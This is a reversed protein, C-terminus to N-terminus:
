NTAAAQAAIAQVGTMVTKGDSVLSLAWGKHIFALWQEYTTGEDNSRWSYDPSEVLWRALLEPTVFVPSIPSGESVTEWLQWGDGSPPETLKWRDCQRKIKESPWLTGEGNCRKCTTEYGLRKCEAKVCIWQNCSDHGFGRLSWENVEQPTPIYKPKKDQWGKGQTWTRTFDGLRNGDVLAKVDDANLHHSWARNWLGCLREAERQIAQTGVGYFEPSNTVNREAFQWVAPDNPQLPKSGRDEPKFPANGYWMDSLRKSEPSSGSGDCQPCKISQTYFPNKYGGWITGVPWDFGMPVRKIERGM